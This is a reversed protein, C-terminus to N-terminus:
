GPPAGCAEPPPSLRVIVVDPDIYGPRFFGQLSESEFLDRREELYPRDLVLTNVGMGLGMMCLLRESPFNEDMDVQFTGYGSPFYGSYGNLLPRHHDIQAFMRWTEVEYDSVHLGRPFPVHAVILKGPQKRLWEAWATRPTTPTPVLNGPSALNEAAALVGLAIALIKGTNGRWSSLRALALAALAALLAQSIAAARFPSRLTRLGPVVERLNAFPRWDGIRLNLGLALLVGIVVCALLCVIWLRREGQRWGLWAGAAGLGLLLFGPFLGGTDGSYSDERSPFALRSSGPRTAFDEPQASLAAVVEESRSFKYKEHFSSVTGAIPAIVLAGVIGLAGLTAISRFRFRQEVLAVIGALLLFPLSLLAMQQGALFQAAFSLVALATPKWGGEKGFRILAALAWITGFLPLVPLVGLVKATYPLTVGALAALLAASRTAGLARALSGTALGNCVLTFLIALNYIAAPPAGMWWLPSLTVGQLLLPESFTFTGELPHFIPANWLGDFGHPVRDADWWLTWLNFLPVTAEHETGLPLAHAIAPLLPWTAVIAALLCVVFPVLRRLWPHFTM